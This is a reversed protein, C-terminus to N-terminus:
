VLSPEAVSCTLVIGAELGVRLAESGTKATRAKLKLGTGLSM